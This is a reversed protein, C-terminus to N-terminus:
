AAMRRTPKVVSVLSPTYYCTDSGHDNDFKVKISALIKDAANQLVDRIDCDQSRTMMGGFWVEVGKKTQSESLVVQGESTKQIDALVRSLDLAKYAPMDVPLTIEFYIMEM